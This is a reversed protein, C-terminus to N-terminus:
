EKITSISQITSMFVDVDEVILEIVGGAAANSYKNKAKDGKYVNVEKIFTPEVDSVLQTGKYEIRIFVGDDIVKTDSSNMAKLTTIQDSTAFSKKLKIVYLIEDQVEVFTSSTQNDFINMSNGPIVLVLLVLVSMIIKIM